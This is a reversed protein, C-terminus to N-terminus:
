NQCAQPLYPYLSKSVGTGSAVAAGPVSTGFTACQWKVSGDAQNGTGILGIFQGDVNNNNTGQLKVTVNALNSGAGAAIYDMRAVYTSNQFPPNGTNSGAVPRNASTPFVGNNSSYAEAIASKAADLDSTAEVLKSKIMYNNYAPLAIAALIGVIAVVIMLEILTFGKQVRKNIRRMSKM